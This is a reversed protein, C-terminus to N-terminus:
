VFLENSKRQSCVKKLSLAAVAVIAQNVKRAAHPCQAVCRMCTLRRSANHALPEERALMKCDHDRLRASVARRMNGEMACFSGQQVAERKKSM